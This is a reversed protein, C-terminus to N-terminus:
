TPEGDMDQWTEHAVIRYITKHNVKYEAGLARLSHAGAQYTQRIAKVLPWTLKANPALEGKNAGPVRDMWIKLGNHRSEPHTHAGNRLGCARSEPHTHSGNRAGSAARRKAAMDKNNDDVTGIWLHDPRVCSPNDCHHLVCMGSPIVRFQFEYAVRHPLRMRRKISFLGYGLPNKAAHWTWCDVSKDVKSWFREETSFGNPARVLKGM